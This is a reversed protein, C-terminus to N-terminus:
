DNYNAHVYQVENSNVEAPWSALLAEAGYIETLEDAGAGETDYDIIVFEIPEESMVNQVVGGEVVIVIKM